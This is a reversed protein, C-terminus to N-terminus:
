IKQMEFKIKKINVIDNTLSINDKKPIWDAHMQIALIHLDWTYLISQKM